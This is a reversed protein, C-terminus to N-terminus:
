VVGFTNEYVDRNYHLLLDVKKKFFLLLFPQEGTGIESFYSAIRYGLCFLCEQVLPSLYPSPINHLISQIYFYHYIPPKYGVWAVDTETVACM